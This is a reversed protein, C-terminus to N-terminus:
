QFAHILYKLWDIVVIIGYETVVLIEGANSKSVDYVIGLIGRPHSVDRIDMKLTVIDGITIKALADQQLRKMKKAQELQGRHCKGLSNERHQSRSSQPSTFLDKPKTVKSAKVHLLLEADEAAQPSFVTDNDLDNTDLEVEM